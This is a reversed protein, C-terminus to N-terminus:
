QVQETTFQESEYRENLADWKIRAAHFDLVEDRPRLQALPLKTDGIRSLGYYTVPISSSTVEVITLGFKAWLKRFVKPTCLEKAFFAEAIQWYGLPTVLAQPTVGECILVIGSNTARVGPMFYTESIPEQVVNCERCILRAVSRMHSYLEYEEETYLENM